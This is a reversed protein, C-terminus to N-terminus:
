NGHVSLWDALKVFDALSLKEPRQGLEIGCSALEDINELLPKLANRLTKRRQQFATKVTKELWQLNKAEIPLTQHPVLRVIASDVKPAPDFSDPGVDFLYEVRSFYQCMIGLRGYHRDGPQAVMRQVVEKQLMFHMDGIMHRYSLLHFILPTSINYPLNGVVRLPHNEIALQAYDFKLADAEFIQLKDHSAFQAQLRPILDRDLEIVKLKACANVLPATLAGQGPGIEVLNDDDRPRIATVINDIVQQNVLFNQGFRKRAQHPGPKM